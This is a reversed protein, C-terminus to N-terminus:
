WLVIVDVVAAVVVMSYCRSVVVEVVVAAELVVM